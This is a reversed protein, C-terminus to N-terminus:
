PVCRPAGRRIGRALPLASRFARRRPPCGLPNDPRLGAQSRGGSISRTAFRLPYRRHALRVGSRTSPRVRHLLGRLRPLPPGSDPLPITGYTSLGFLCLSLLLRRVCSSSDDRRRDRALAPVAPNRHVPRCRTAVPYPDAVDNRLRAAAVRTTDVGNGTAQASWHEFESAAEQSANGAPLLLRICVTTHMAVVAM